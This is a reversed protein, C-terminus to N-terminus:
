KVEKLDLKRQILQIVWYVFSTYIITMLISHSLVKFLVFISYSDYRLMSLFFFTIIHYIFIGLLNSINITLFNYPFFFHFVKSFYYVLVFLFTNFLLTNTYVIDVILGLVIVLIFYKKENEFYPRLVLLNILVYITSFFSLDSYTYGLYNSMVGQVFCSIMLSIISVIIM